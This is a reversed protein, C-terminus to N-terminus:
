NSLLLQVGFSLRLPNQPAGATFEAAASGAAVSEPAAGINVNRYKSNLVNSGKLYFKISNLHYSVTANLLNYGDIEQYKQENDMQVSQSNFTRQKGFILFRTSVVFSKVQYTAGLHLSHNSIGPLNREKIPGAEDVDIVGEIYSYSAQTTLKSSTTLNRLFNLQLSGGYIQSEGFNDSIQMSSVPYGEYSFGGIADDHYLQAIKTSDTVPSILGNVDSFYTNVTFNLNESINSIIGLELTNIKQPKLNPNPMQFFFSYYSEGNDASNFTGYRDYMAQPSPALFASGYLFKINLLSNAKYVVGLRPNINTGYRDDNDVRGGLTLHMNNLPSYQLQVFGGINSYDTSILNAPIGQLNNPFISNM